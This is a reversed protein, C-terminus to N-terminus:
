TLFHAALKEFIIVKKLLIEKLGQQMNKFTMLCIVSVSYTSREMPEQQLPPEIAGRRVGGGSVVLGEELTCRHLAPRIM